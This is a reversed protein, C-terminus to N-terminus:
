QRRAVVTNGALPDIKEEDDGGEIGSLLLKSTSDFPTSSDVGLSQQLSLRYEANKFMYGTMQLQFMLSALRQGTTITTTDFALKPLGGILGLITNRVANQVRPHATATFKSILESPTLKSVVAMYPNRALMEASPGPFLDGSTTTPGVLASSNTRGGLSDTGNADGQEKEDDKLGFSIPLSNESMFERAKKMNESEKRHPNLFDDWEAMDGDNDGSRPPRGDGAGGVSSLLRTKSCFAPELLQFGQPYQVVHNFTLFVATWSATRSFKPRAM